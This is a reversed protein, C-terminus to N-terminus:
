DRVMYVVHVDATHFHYGHRGKGGREQVRRAGTESL